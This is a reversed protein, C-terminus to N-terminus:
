ATFMDLVYKRLGSVEQVVDHIERALAGVCQQVEPNDEEEKDTLLKKLEKQKETKLGELQKRYLNITKVASPTDTTAGQELIKSVDEKAISMGMGSLDVSLTNM